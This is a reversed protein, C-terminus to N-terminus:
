PMVSGYWSLSHTILKLKRMQVCRPQRSEWARAHGASEYGPVLEGGPITLEAGKKKPMGLSVSEGRTSPMRAFTEQIQSVPM